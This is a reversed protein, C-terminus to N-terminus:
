VQQYSDVTSYLQTPQFMPKVALTRTSNNKLAKIKDTLKNIINNELVMFLEVNKNFPIYSATLLCNFMIIYFMDMYQIKNVHIEPFVQNIVSIISYNWLVMLIAASIFANVLTYITILMIDCFSLNLIYKYLYDNKNSKHSTEDYIPM